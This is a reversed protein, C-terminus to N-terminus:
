VLQWSLCTPSTSGVLELETQYMVRQDGDLKM